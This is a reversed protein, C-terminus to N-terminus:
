KGGRKISFLYIGGQKEKEIGNMKNIIMWIYPSSKGLEIAIQKITRPKGDKLLELIEEERIKSM